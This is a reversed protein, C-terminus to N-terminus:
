ATEYRLARRAFPRWHPFDVCSVIPQRERGEREKEEWARVVKEKGEWAMGEVKEEEEDEMEEVEDEMEEVEEEM